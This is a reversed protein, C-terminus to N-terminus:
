TREKGEFLPLLRVPSRAMQHSTRALLGAVVIAIFANM